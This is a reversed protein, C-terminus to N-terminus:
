ALYRRQKTAGTIGNGGHGSNARRSALGDDAAIGALEADPSRRTLASARPAAGARKSRRAAAQGHQAAAQLHQLAGGLMLVGTLMTVITNRRM